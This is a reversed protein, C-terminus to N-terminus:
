ASAASCATPLPAREVFPFISISKPVAEYYERLEKFDLRIKTALSRLPDRIAFFLLLCSEEVRAQSNKPWPIRTRTRECAVSNRTGSITSKRKM